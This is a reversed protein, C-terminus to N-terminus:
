GARTKRETLLVVGQVGHLHFERDTQSINLMALTSPPDRYVRTPIRRCRWFIPITEHCIYMMESEPTTYSPLGPEFSQGLPRM